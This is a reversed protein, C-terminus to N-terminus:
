VRRAQRLIAFFTFISFMSYIFTILSIGWEFNTMFPHNDGQTEKKEQTRDDTDRPSGINVQVVTSPPTPQTPQSGASGQPNNTKMKDQASILTTILLLLSIMVVSFLRM